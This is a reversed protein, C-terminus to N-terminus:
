YNGAFYEASTLVKLSLPYSNTFYDFQYQDFEYTEDQDLTIVVIDGNYNTQEYFVVRMGNQDTDNKMEMAIKGRGFVEQNGKRYLRDLARGLSFNSKRVGSARARVSKANYDWMNSNNVVKSFYHSNNTNFYESVIYFNDAFDTYFSDSAITGLGDIGNLTSKENLVEDDSIFSEEDEYYVKGRSDILEKEFVVNSRIKQIDVNM